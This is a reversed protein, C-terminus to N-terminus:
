YGTLLAFLIGIMASAIFIISCKICIGEHKQEPEDLNLRRYENYKIRNYYNYDYNPNKM